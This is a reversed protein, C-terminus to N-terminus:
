KPAAAITKKFKATMKDLRAVVKEITPRLKDIKKKINLVTAALELYCTAGKALKVDQVLKECTAVKKQAELAEKVLASGEKYLEKVKNAFKPHKKAVMNIFKPAKKIVDLEKVKIFLEEAEPGMKKFAEIKEKIRIKKNAVDWKKWLDKHRQVIKHKDLMNRIEQKEQALTKEATHLHTAAFMTSVLLVVALKKIKM